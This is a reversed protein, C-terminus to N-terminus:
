DAATVQQIHLYAKTQAANTEDAVLNSNPAGMMFKLVYMTRDAIDTSTWMYTRQEPAVFYVDPDGWAAGADAGVWVEGDGQLGVNGYWQGEVPLSFANSATGLNGGQYSVHGNWMITKAGDNSRLQLDANALITGPPVFVRVSFKGDQSTLVRHFGDVGDESTAILPGLTAIEGINAVETEGVTATCSQPNSTGFELDFSAGSPSDSVPTGEVDYVLFGNGYELTGPKLRVQLGTNGTSAIWDGEGYNGGNGGTYPVKMIGTYAVGATFTSPDLTAQNCLLEDIEPDVQESSDLKKWQVGDWYYFGSALTSGINYVLLSEAQGAMGDLDLTISTLDVRPILMGKDTAVVELISSDDPTQTNIGTHQAFLAQGGFLLLTLLCINRIVIAM